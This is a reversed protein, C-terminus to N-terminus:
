IGKVYVIDKNGYQNTMVRVRDKGYEQRLHSVAKTLEYYDSYSGVRKWDGWRYGERSHKRVKTKKDM